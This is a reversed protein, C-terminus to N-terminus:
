RRFRHGCHMCVCLITMPEDASRLQVEYYSCKNKKCKPCTFMNTVQAMDSLNTNQRKIFDDIIGQWLDPRLNEPRMVTALEHPAFEKDRIRDIIPAHALNALICRAKNAYLNKFMFSSWNCAIGREKCYDITSNLVGIELDKAEIESLGRDMYLSRCRERVEM